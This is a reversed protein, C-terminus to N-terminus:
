SRKAEHLHHCTLTTRLLCTRINSLLRAFAISFLGVEINLASM